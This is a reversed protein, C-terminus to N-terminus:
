KGIGALIKSDQYNSCTDRLEEGKATNALDVTDWWPYRSLLQSMFKRTKKLKSACKEKILLFKLHFRDGM